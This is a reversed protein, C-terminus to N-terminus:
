RDMVRGFVQRAIRGLKTVRYRAPSVGMVEVCGKGVLSRLIRTEGRGWQGRWEAPYDECGRMVLRRLVRDEGGTLRPVRVFPGRPFLQVERRMVGGADAAVALVGWWLGRGVGGEVAEEGPAAASAGYGDQGEGHCIEDRPTVGGDRDAAGCVSAAFWGVGFEGWV